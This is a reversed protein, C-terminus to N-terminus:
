ALGQVLRKILRKGLRQGAIVRTDEAALLAFSYATCNRFKRQCDICLVPISGCMPTSANRESPSM